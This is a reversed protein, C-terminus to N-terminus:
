TYQEGSIKDLARESLEKPSAWRRDNTLGHIIVDMLKQSSEPLFDLTYGETKLAKLINM